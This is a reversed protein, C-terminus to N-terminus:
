KEAGGVNMMDLCAKTLQIFLGNKGEQVQVAMGAAELNIVIKELMDADVGNTWHKRILEKRSLKYGPSQLLETVVLGGAQSLDTKGHSMTFISYNPLLSLCDNIAEEIHCKCIRMELENAALVMAIKLAHTHIRGVIGSAEKKKEYSKRFPKYWNTFEDKAEREIIFEGTLNSIHRLTKILEQKSEEIKDNNMDMLSNSERFASPVVLLTRALFGGRVVAMDFMSRLMEENSAALISFVIKNLDFCPGTRLRSNYPDPKYDYIDTLIRMGEPDAVIGASLEPAYFIACNNRMVKGTKSDTEARALEDLIAHVSARGSITKTQNVATMLTRSFAVPRDKRHGSSEAVFLTYLNPYIPSGGVKIYCKDKLSAAITAYCSWKWFSSPSEYEENHTNYAEIFNQSVHTPKEAKRPSM